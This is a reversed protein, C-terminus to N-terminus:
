LFRYGLGRVTQVYQPNDPDAEIKLRLRRVYVAIQNSYGEYDYGWVSSIIKDHTLIRGPNGMLCHLLRFEIPTLEVRAGSPLLVLNTVPDIHLGGATLASQSDGFTYSDARRLVSRVRALLESPEFPKALYDDAGVDLGVVRDATEGKASLIIIPLNMTARVRQTVQLGDMGPMMVDLIVLDPLKEEILRLGDIGNDATFVEYGEETLLFATMKLSPADDDVVLVRM